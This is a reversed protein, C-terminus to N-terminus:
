NKLTTLMIDLGKKQKFRAGFEVIAQDVSDFMYDPWLTVNSPAMIGDKICFLSFNTLSIAQKELSKRLQATSKLSITKTDSQPSLVNLSGDYFEAFCFFGNWHKQKYKKSHTKGDAITSSRYIKKNDCDNANPFDVTHHEQDTFISNAASYTHFQM